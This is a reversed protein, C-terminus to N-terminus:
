RSASLSRPAPRSVSSSVKSARWASRSQEPQRAAPRPSSPQPAPARAPLAQLAAPTWGILYPGTGARVALWGEVARVVAVEYADPQAPLEAVQPGAPASSSAPLEFLQVVTNAPVRYPLGPEPRAATGPAHAASLGVAPYSGEYHGLAREGLRPEVAVRLREPRSDAGLVRVRDDPGLYAPTGRVRGRQQVRLSLQEAAVYGHTRLPGDIRVAVRGSTPEGSLVLTVEDSVYGIQASGPEPGLFLAPQDSAALLAHTPLSGRATSVRACGASLLLALSLLCSGPPFPTIRVASAVYRLWSHARM